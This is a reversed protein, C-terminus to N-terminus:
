IKGKFKCVCRLTLIERNSGAFDKEKKGRSSSVSKGKHSEQGLRCAEHKTISLDGHQTNAKWETVEWRTDDGDGTSVLHM